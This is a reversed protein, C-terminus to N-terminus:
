KSPPPPSLQGLTWLLENFFRCNWLLLFKHKKVPKRANRTRAKRNQMERRGAITQTERDLPHPWLSCFKQLTIARVPTKGLKVASSPRPPWLKYTSHHFSPLIPRMPLKVLSQEPTLLQRSRSSAFFHELHTVNQYPDPDASGYRQIASGSGARKKLPKWSALFFLTKWWTEKSIVYKLYM